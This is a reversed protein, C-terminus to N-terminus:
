ATWRFTTNGRLDRSGERDRGRDVGLEGVATTCQASAASHLSRQSSCPCPARPTVNVAPPATASARQPPPSCSAMSRSSGRRPDAVLRVSAAGRPDRRSVRRLGRRSLSHRLEAARGRPRGGRGHPRESRTGYEQVLDAVTLGLCVSYELVYIEIEDPALTPPTRAASADAPSVRLGDRCGRYSVDRLRADPQNLRAWSRAATEVTSGNTDYEYALSTFSHGACAARANEYALPRVAALYDYTSREADSASQGGCGALTLAALFVLGIRRDLCM